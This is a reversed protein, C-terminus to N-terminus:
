WLKGLFFYPATTTLGCGTDSLGSQACLRWDRLAVLKLPKEMALIRLEAFRQIQRRKFLWHISSVPQSCPKAKPSMLNGKACWTCRRPAQSPAYERAANRSRYAQLGWSALESHLHLIVTMCVIWSIASGTGSTSAGLAPGEGRWGVCGHSMFLNGRCNGRM